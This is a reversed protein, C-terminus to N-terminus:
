LGSPQADIIRRAALARPIHRALDSGSALFKELPEWYNGKWGAALHEAQGVPFGTHDFVLRTGTGEKRLEFRVISYVGAGLRGAALRHRLDSGTHAARRSM